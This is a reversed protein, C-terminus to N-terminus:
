RIETMYRNGYNYVLHEHVNDVTPFTQGDIEVMREFSIPTLFNNNAQIIYISINSIPNTASKAATYLDIYASLDGMVTPSKRHVIQRTLWNTISNNKRVCLRSMGLAEFLHYGNEYLESRIENTHLYTSNFYGVDIDHTWPIITHDRVAGLLSGYIVVYTLNHSRFFGDLFVLFHKLIYACCTENKTTCQTSYSCQLSSCESIGAKSFKMTILPTIEKQIREFRTTHNTTYIFYTVIVVVSM